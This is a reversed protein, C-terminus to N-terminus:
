KKNKILEQVLAKLQDVEDRLGEITDRSNRQQKYLKYATVNTNIVANSDLYRSFDSTNTKVLKM